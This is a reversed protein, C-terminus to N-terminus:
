FPKIESIQQSDLKFRVKQGVTVTQLMASKGAVFPMSGAPWGLAEVPEYAITIRDTAPDLAKVVGVIEIQNVPKDPERKPGKDPQAPKDGQPQGGHGGRGGHHGGGGGGGSPYGSGGTGPFGGGDVQGLAPGAGLAGLALATMLLTTAVRRM